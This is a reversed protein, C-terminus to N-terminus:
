QFKFIHGDIRLLTICVDHGADLGNKEGRSGGRLSGSFASRSTAATASDDFGGKGHVGGGGGGGGGGGSNTVSVANLRRRGWQGRRSRGPSGAGRNNMSDDADTDALAKARRRRHTRIRTNAHTLSHLRIHTTHRRGRQGRRAREPNM